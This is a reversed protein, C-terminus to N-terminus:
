FHSYWRDICMWILKIEEEDLNAKYSLIDNILYAEFLMMEHKNEIAEIEDMMAIIEASARPMPFNIVNDM